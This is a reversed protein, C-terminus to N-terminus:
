LISAENISLLIYKLKILSKSVIFNININTVIAIINTNLITNIFLNFGINPVIRISITSNIKAAIKKKDGKKYSLFKTSEGELFAISIDYKKRIVLNILQPFKRTLIYLKNKLFYKLKSGKKNLFYKLNINKNINNLYM